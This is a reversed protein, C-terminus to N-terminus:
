RLLLHSSCLAAHIGKQSFGTPCSEAAQRLIQTVAAAESGDGGAQKSRPEAQLQVPSGPPRLLLPFCAWTLVGLLCEPLHRPPWGRLAKRGPARAKEEEPKKGVEDGGTPRTVVLLLLPPPSVRGGPAPSPHQSLRQEGTEQILRSM